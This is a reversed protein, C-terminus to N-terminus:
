LLYNLKKINYTGLKSINILNNTNLNCYLLIIDKYINDYKLIIISNNKKIYQILIGKFYYIHLLINNIYEYYICKIIINKKLIFNSNYKYHIYKLNKIYYYKITNLIIM